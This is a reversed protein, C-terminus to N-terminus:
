EGEEMTEKIVYGDPIPEKAPKIITIVIKRRGAVFRKYLAITGNIGADAMINICEQPSPEFIESKSVINIEDDDTILEAHENIIKKIKDAGIGKHIM